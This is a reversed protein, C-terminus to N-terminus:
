TVKKKKKKKPHAVKNKKTPNSTFNLQLLNEFMANEIPGWKLSWAHQLLNEFKAYKKPGQKPSHVTM